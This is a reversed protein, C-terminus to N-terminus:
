QRLQRNAIQWKFFFFIEFFCHWRKQKWLRKLWTAPSGTDWRICHNRQTSERQVSLLMDESGSSLSFWFKILTKWVLVSPSRTESVNKTQCIFGLPNYFAFYLLIPPPHIPTPLPPTPNSLPIPLPPYTHPPPAEDLDMVATQLASFTGHGILQKM